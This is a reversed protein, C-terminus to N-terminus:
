RGICCEQGLGAGKVSATAAGGAAPDCGGLIVPALIALVGAITTVYAGSPGSLRELAM